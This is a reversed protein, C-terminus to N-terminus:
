LKRGRAQLLQEYAKEALIQCMEAYRKAEELNLVDISRLAGKLESISGALAKILERNAVALEVTKVLEDTPISEGEGKILYRFVGRNVSEQATEISPFATMIIPELFPDELAVDLVKMGAVEPNISTGTYNEFRLDILIVHYPHKKQYATRLADIGDDITHAKHVEHGELGLVRSVTTLVADRDDVILIRAM